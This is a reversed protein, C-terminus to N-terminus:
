PVLVNRGQSWSRITAALDEIQEPALDEKRVRAIADQLIKGDVDLPPYLFSPDTYPNPPPVLNHRHQQALIENKIAQENWKPGLLVGLYLVKAMWVDVGETLVAEYFM